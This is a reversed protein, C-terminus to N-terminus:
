GQARNTIILARPEPVAEEYLENQSRLDALRARHSKAIDWLKEGTEAYYLLFRSRKEFGPANEDGAAGTLYKVTSLSYLLSTVATEASVEVTNKDAIRYEWVDTHASTQCKGPTSDPLETTFTHDFQKEMYLIRGQGNVYLLCMTYKVRYTLKGKDCSSQVSDQQCWLDLVQTIEEGSVQLSCKKKLVEGHVGHVQTFASQGYRLELPGDVSYADDIIEVECAKYLFVLLFVRIVVSVGTNEGVDDERPSMTCEGTVIRVDCICGEGAGACDIIQSFDLSATMKELVTNDMASAYLFGVDAVGSITLRDDSMRSETVRCSVDRRLITEIPPKGNKLPLNEELTFQHCVANVAQHAPFTRGRKEMSDEELDATVNEKKQVVALIQLSVAAHLDVRRASVARCTMHQISAQVFAVAKEEAAKLKVSQSFERTFEACRVCDGKGDLYLVRVDCVGEVTLTDGSILYASVEPTAQCKLLKQIDPCYDPLNFETDLPTECTGSYVPDFFEYPVIRSKAQM